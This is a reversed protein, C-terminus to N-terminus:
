RIRESRGGEIHGAISGLGIWDLKASEWVSRDPVFDPTQFCGLAIGMGSPHLETEWYVSTGCNPCFFTSFVRDAVAREFRTAHGSITVVAKEFYVGVGFASGTRKKCATCHCAVTAYPEGGVVLCLKECSCSALRSM